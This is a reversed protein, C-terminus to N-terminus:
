RRVRVRGGSIRQQRPKRRKKPKAAVPPEAFPLAEAEVTTASESTQEEGDQGDREFYWLRREGYQKSEAVCHYGHPAKPERRATLVLLDSMVRM